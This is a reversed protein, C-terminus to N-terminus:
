KLTVDVESVYSMDGYYYLIYCSVAVCETILLDKYVKTRESFGQCCTQGRACIDVTEGGVTYVRRVGEACCYSSDDAGSRGM